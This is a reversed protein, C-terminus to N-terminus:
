VRDGCGYQQPQFMALSDPDSEENSIDMLDTGIQFLGWNALLLM